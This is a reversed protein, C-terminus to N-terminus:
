PIQADFSPRRICRTKINTMPVASMAAAWRCAFNWVAGHGGRDLAADPQGSRNEWSGMRGAALATRYQTQNERLRRNAESLEATKRELAEKSELLERDARQRALLISQANQLAVSRLLKEEDDDSPMLPGCDQRRGTGYRARALPNERVRHRPQHLHRRLVAFIRLRGHHGAARGSHIQRGAPHPRPGTGSNRTAPRDAGGRRCFIRQDPKIHEAIIKLVRAPDPEGALAIYFNGARLEFLSPLLEAYDVDSSHTSDRDGGPCTHVGIRRREAASFRSLALNNLDIFSNLLHGSPDLKIALRGETFDIQVKHAGKELCARVETEHERLLDDIFAERSYGPIGQEPYMLSLASPSIV